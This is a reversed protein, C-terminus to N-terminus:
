KCRTGGENNLIRKIKINDEWRHRLRFNINLIIRGAMGPDKLHDRGKLNEEKIKNANQM